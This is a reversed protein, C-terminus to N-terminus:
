ERDARRKELVNEAWLWIFASIYPFCQYLALYIDKLKLWFYISVILNLIICPLIKKSPLKFVKLLLFVIILPVSAVAFEVTDELWYIIIDM